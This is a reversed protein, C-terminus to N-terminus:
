EKDPLVEEYDCDPKPCHRTQPGGRKKTVTTWENGCKPCATERDLQGFAKFDCEPYGECGIFRRRKALKSVLDKACKPCPIGLPAPKTFKCKPYKECGYFPEGRRNKRILLVAGCDPCKEDTRIPEERTDEVKNGDKDLKITNKCKPYASCAMFKGWRGTRIVM